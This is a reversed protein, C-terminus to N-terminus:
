RVPGGAAGNAGTNWAFLIGMGSGSAKMPSSGVIAGSSDAVVSANMEEATAFLGLVTFTKVSRWTAVLHNDNGMVSNPAGNNSVADALTEGATFSEPGYNSMGICGSLGLALGGLALTAFTKM